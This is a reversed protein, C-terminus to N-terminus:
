RPSKRKLSIKEKVEELYTIPADTRKLLISCKDKNGPSLIVKLKKKTLLFKVLSSYDGDSTIIIQRDCKKEYVDKVSQLVLDTDCNGKPSGKGYYVVEKFVLIFGADQLAAYLDKNKTILGIFYYAKNVQYKDKLWRRFRILDIKWHSAGVGRYLNNGDIYAFNNEKKRM